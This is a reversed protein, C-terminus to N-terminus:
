VSSKFSFQNRGANKSAYLADDAEAIIRRIDDNVILAISIGVSISIQHNRQVERGEFPYSSIVNCLHQGLQNLETMDCSHCMVIFEEGGYRALYDKEGISHRLVNGIELLLQDGQQHGHQDNYNKFHDIDIMLISIRNEKLTKTCINMFSRLNPLKTLNDQSAQLELELQMLWIKNEDNYMAILIVVAVCSIIFILINDAIWGSHPPSMVFFGSLTRIFIFLICIKIADAMRIVTHGNKYEKCHYFASILAPILLGQSIEFISVSMGTSLIFISPIITSLLAIPFGFRLGAMIIPAFRLDFILDSPFPQLMMMVSSVGTLLPVLFLENSEIFMKNRIKLAIYNLTILTCANTILVLLENM